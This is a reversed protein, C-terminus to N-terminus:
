LWAFCPLALFSQEVCWHGHSLPLPRRWKLLNRTMLNHSARARMYDKYRKFVIDTARLHVYAWTQDYQYFVLDNRSEWLLDVAIGFFAPWFFAAESFSLNTELWVTVDGKFFKPALKKPLVSRWFAAVEPCDRLAHLCTEELVGCRRCSVMSIHSYRREANTFLAGDAANGLLNIIREPGVWRSLRGNKVENCNLLIIKMYLIIIVSAQGCIGLSKLSHNHNLVTSIM